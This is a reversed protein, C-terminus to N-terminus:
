SGKICKSLKFSGSGSCEGSESLDELSWGTVSPKDLQRFTNEKLFIKDLNWYQLIPRFCLNEGTHLCETLVMLIHFWCIYNQAIVM